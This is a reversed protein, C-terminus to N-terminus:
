RQKLFELRAADQPSANTEDLLGDVLGDWAYEGSMRGDTLMIKTSGSVAANLQVHDALTFQTGKMWFILRVDSNNVNKPQCHKEIYQLAGLLSPVQASRWGGFDFMIIAQPSILRPEKYLRYDNYVREFSMKYLEAVVDKDPGVTFNLTRSAVGVDLEEQMQTPSMPPPRDATIHKCIMKFTMRERPAMSELRKLEETSAKLRKELVLKEQQLSAMLESDDKQLEIESKKMSLLSYDTQYMRAAYNAEDLGNELGQGRALLILQLDWVAKQTKVMTALRYEQFCWGRVDYPRANTIYDGSPVPGRMTLVITHPHAYLDGMMNLGKKFRAMEADTRDDGAGPVTSPQPLSMFDIFVGVSKREIRKPAIKGNSDAASYMVDHLIARLVPLM